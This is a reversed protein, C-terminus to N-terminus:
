CAHIMTRIDDVSRGLDGAIQETTYNSAVLWRLRAMEDDTWRVLRLTRPKSPENTGM